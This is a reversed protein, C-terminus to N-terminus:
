FFNCESRRKVKAIFETAIRWWIKTAVAIWGFIKVKPPVNIKWISRKWLILMPVFVLIMMQSWCASKISFNGNSAPDWIFKDCSTNLPIPIGKIKNVIDHDLVSLLKHSDWGNNTIYDSVMDQLNVQFKQQDNLFNFLPFPFAWNFTWFNIDKGNGIIWRMCKTLLDRTDLIDKWTCSNVQKKGVTFFSNNWLYKKRVIQAWWNNPETILKWGLKALASNNFVNTPRVGLGGM